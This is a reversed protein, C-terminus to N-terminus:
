PLFGCVVVVAGQAVVPFVDQQSQKRTTPRRLPAQKAEETPDTWTRHVICSGDQRRLLLPEQGLQDRIVVINQM